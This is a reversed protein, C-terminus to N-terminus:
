IKVFMFKLKNSSSLRTITQFRYNKIVDSNKQLVSKYVTFLFYVYVTNYVVMIFLVFLGKPIPLIYSNKFMRPLFGTWSRWPPPINTLGSGKIPSYIFKEFSWLLNPQTLRYMIYLGRRISTAKATAWRFVFVCRTKEYM